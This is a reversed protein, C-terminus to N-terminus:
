SSAAGAKEVDGVVEWESRGELLTKLGQSVAPHDDVLLIGVAM